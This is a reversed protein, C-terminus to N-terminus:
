YDDGYDKSYQLKKFFLTELNGYDDGYDKSNQLKKFPVNDLKWNEMTIAM